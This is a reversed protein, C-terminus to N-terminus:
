NGRVNVRVVVSTNNHGTFIKAVARPISSVIKMAGPEFAAGLLVLFMGIVCMGIVAKKM